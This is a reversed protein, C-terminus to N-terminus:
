PFHAEHAHQMQTHVVGIQELINRPQKSAVHSKREQNRKTSSVVSGMAASPSPFSQLLCGRKVDDIGGELAVVMLGCMCM